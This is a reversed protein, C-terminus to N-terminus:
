RIRMYFIVGILFSLLLILLWGLKGDYWSQFGVSFPFRSEFSEGTPSTAKVIGVYYGPDDFDLGVKISGSRYSTPPKAYILEGDSAPDGVLDVNRVVQVEIEMARMVNDIFDFVIFTQAVFPMDECFETNKSDGKQYGSFHMYYPGITLKCQDFEMALGGHAMVKLPNMM